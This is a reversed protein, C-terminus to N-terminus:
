KERLYRMVPKLMKKWAINEEAYMRINHIVDAYTETNNYIVDYFDVIRNMDITSDDNSFELYYAFTENTFIDQKSGAAVPLGRALYERLKM